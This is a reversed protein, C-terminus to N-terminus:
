WEIIQAYSIDKKVLTKRPKGMLDRAKYLSSNTKMGGILAMFWSRRIDGCWQVICDETDFREDM